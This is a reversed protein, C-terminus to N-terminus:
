TPEARPRTSAYLFPDEPSWLHADRIVLRETITREENPKLVVRSPKNAGAATGGKWTKVRHELAFSVESTGANRLRMEVVIESSALRPAVQISQIVPVSDYIGPTWKLKERDTGAPTSILKSLDFYGATFCGFHEGAPEREAM